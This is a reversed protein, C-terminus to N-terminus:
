LKMMGEPSCVKMVIIAYSFGKVNDIEIFVYRNYHATLIIKVHKVNIAEYYSVLM